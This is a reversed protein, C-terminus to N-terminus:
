KKDSILQMFFEQKLEDEREKTQAMAMLAEAKKLSENVAKESEEPNLKRGGEYAIVLDSDNSRSSVQSEKPQHALQINDGKDMIFISVTFIIILSAAIGATRRLWTLHIKKKVKRNMSLLGEAIMSQKAEEIVPSTYNVKTLIYRLEKEELVSLQCELYLRCLDETEQLTLINDNDKM